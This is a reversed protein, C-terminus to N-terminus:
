VEIEDFPYTEYDEEQNEEQDEKDEDKDEDKDENFDRFGGIQMNVDAFEM